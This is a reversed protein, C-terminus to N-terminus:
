SLSEAHWRASEAVSRYLRVTHELSDDVTKARGGVTESASAILFGVVDRAESGLVQEDIGALEALARDLGPGRAGIAGSALAVARDALSALRHLEHALGGVVDGVRAAGRRAEEDMAGTAAGVRAVIGPREAPLDLLPAVPAWPLGPIALGKASLNYTPAEPHAGAMREFWSSYLSLREDSTVESGDNAAAMFPRGGRMAQFAADSAPSLRSGSALSRQEFLSARAHTRGGPFSLDLGAMYIPACGLLRAFDWATTSVSGGAGLEGKPPGMRDEVYRGLPYISSCLATRRSEFRLVSPWVAAEAILISGPSACRDLHRANWYQPDVVVVFDPEIGLRLASRLATDVCVIVMREALAGLVPELDDLSPGAALVLAPLGAFRGALTSLGPRSAAERVNRALNRVWLRGFRKLTAANIEDKKRYRSIQERFTTAAEPFAAMTAGNEIVAISRPAAEELYDLLGLGGPCLILTFRADSVVDSLDVVRFLAALWGPDSEIAAIPSGAALAARASYGLGLGLSLVLSAGTAVAEEAVRGGEAEPDYRSHLWAGAATATPSGNRARMPELPLPPTADVLAALRPSRVRLAEVNKRYTGERDDTV